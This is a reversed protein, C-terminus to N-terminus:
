FYHPWMHVENLLLTLLYIADVERLIRVKLNANSNHNPIILHNIKSPKIKM